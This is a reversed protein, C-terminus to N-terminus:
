LLYYIISKIHSIMIVSWEEEKRCRMNFKQRRIEHNQQKGILLRDAGQLLVGAPLSYMYM